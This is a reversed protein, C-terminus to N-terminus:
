CHMWHIRPFVTTPAGTTRSTTRAVLFLWKHMSQLSREQNIGSVAKLFIHSTLDEADERNGVKSSVFRYIPGAQEQYLRQFEQADM